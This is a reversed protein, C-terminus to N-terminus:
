SSLVVGVAVYIIDFALTVGSLLLLVAVMSVVVIQSVFVGVVSAM